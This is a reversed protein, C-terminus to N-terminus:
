KCGYVDCGADVYARLTNYQETVLACGSIISEKDDNCRALTANCDAGSEATGETTSAVDSLGDAAKAIRERLSDSFADNSTFHTRNKAEYESRIQNVIENHSEVIRFITQTAKQEKAINEQNRKIIADNVSRKYDSLVSVATDRERQIAHFQYYSYALVLLPLIIRWYAIIFDKLKGFIGLLFLPNM